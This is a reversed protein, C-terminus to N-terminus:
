FANQYLLLKRINDLIYMTIEKTVVLRLEGEWDQAPLSKTEHRKHAQRVGNFLSALIDWLRSGVVKLKRHFDITFLPWCAEWYAVSSTRVLGGLQISVKIYAKGVALPGYPKLVINVETYKHSFMKKYRAIDNIYTRSDRHSLISKEILQVWNCALNYVYGKCRERWTMQKPPTTAKLIQRPYLWRGLFRIVMLHRHSLWINDIGNVWKASSGLRSCTDACLIDGVMRTPYDSIISDMDNM